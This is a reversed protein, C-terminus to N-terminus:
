PCKTCACSYLPAPEQSARNRRVGSAQASGSRKPSQLLIFGITRTSSCDFKCLFKPREFVSFSNKLPWVQTCSKLQSANIRSARFHIISGAESPGIFGEGRSPLVDTSRESDIWCRSLRHRQVIGVALM